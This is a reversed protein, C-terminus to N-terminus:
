ETKRSFLWFVGYGILLIAVISIVGTTAEIIAGEGLFAWIGEFGGDPEGVGAFDFLSWESGDPNSSALGFLIIATVMVIVVVLPLVYKLSEKRDM